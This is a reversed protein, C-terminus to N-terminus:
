GKALVIATATAILAATTGALAVTHVRLTNALSTRLDAMEKRVGALETRLEHRLLEAQHALDQKTAVDAWGVGPLLEMLTNAREQGMTEELHRYLQHRSHESVAV